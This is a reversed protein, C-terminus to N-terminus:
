QTLDFIFQWLRQVRVEGFLDILSKGSLEAVGEQWEAYSRCYCRREGFSQERPFCITQDFGCDMQSEQRSDISLREVEMRQKSLKKLGLRSAAGVLNLAPICSDRVM